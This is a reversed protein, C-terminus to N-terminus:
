ARDRHRDGHGDHEGGPSFPKRPQKELFFSDEKTKRFLLLFVKTRPAADRTTNAPDFTKCPPCALRLDFTKKSRKRCFFFLRGKKYVRL